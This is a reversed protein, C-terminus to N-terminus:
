KLGGEGKRGYCGDVRQWQYTVDDFAGCDHRPDDPTFHKCGKCHALADKRSLKPQKTM